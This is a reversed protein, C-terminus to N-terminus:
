KYIFIQGKNRIEKRKRNDNTGSTSGDMNIESWFLRREKAVLKVVINTNVDLILKYNVGSDTECSCNNNKGEGRGPEM